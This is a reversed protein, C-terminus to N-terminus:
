EHLIINEDHTNIWFTIPKDIIDMIHNLSHKIDYHIITINKNNEYM